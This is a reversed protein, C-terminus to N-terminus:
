RKSKTKSASKGIIRIAALASIKQRTNTAGAATAASM